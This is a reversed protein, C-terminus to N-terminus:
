AAFVGDASSAVQVQSATWMDAKPDPGAAGYFVTITMAAAGLIGVLSRMVNTDLANTFM